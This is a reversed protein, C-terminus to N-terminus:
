NAWLAQEEREWIANIMEELSIVREFEPDDDAATPTLACQQCM